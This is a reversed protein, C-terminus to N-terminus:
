VPNEDDVFTVTLEPFQAKLAEGLAQVGFRETAHHGASIYFIGLERAEHTTRESIEGSIFADCGAEAAQGLWDQAAGTCLAIKKLQRPKDGVVLPTRQLVSTLRALLVETDVSGEMPRCFNLLEMEGTRAEVTLGLKKALQANNGLEPHADLPLHYALLSMEHDMLVKLRRYKMGVLRPDEGKWFWGHHVLVADAGLLAAEELFRRSATVGTVLHKVEHKGEVQLGNPAYDKFAEISLVNKIHDTLASLQM